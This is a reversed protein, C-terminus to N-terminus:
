ILLFNFTLLYFAWQLIKCVIRCLEKSTKYQNQCLTYLLFFTTKSSIEQPTWENNEQVVNVADSRGEVESVRSTMSLTCKLDDKAKYSCCAIPFNGYCPVIIEVYYDVFLGAIETSSLTEICNWNHLSSDVDILYFFLKYIM